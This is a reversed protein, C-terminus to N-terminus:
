AYEIQVQSDRSLFRIRQCKEIGGNLGFTGPAGIAPAFALMACDCARIRRSRIAPGSAAVFPKSLTLTAGRSCGTALCGQRNPQDEPPGVFRPCRPSLLRVRPCKKRGLRADFCSASLYAILLFVSAASAYTVIEIKMSSHVSDSIVCKGKDRSRAPYKFPALLSCTVGRTSARHTNQKLPVHERWRYIDSGSM